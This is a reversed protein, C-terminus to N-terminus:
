ICRLTLASLNSWPTKISQPCGLSPTSKSRKDTFERDANRRGNEHDVPFMIGIGGYFIVEPDCVVSSGICIIYHRNICVCLIYSIIYKKRSRPKNEVSGSVNQGVRAYIRSQSIVVEQPLLWPICFCSYLLSLIAYRKPRLRPVVRPGSHTHTIYLRTKFKYFIGL